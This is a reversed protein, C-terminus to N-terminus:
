RNIAQRIEEASVLRTWVAVVVSRGRRNDILVVVPHSAHWPEILPTWAIINASFGEKRLLAIEDYQKDCIECDSKLYVM